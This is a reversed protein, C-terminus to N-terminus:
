LERPRCVQDGRGSRLWTPKAAKIHFQVNADVMGWLIHYFTYKTEAFAGGSFLVAAIRRETLFGTKLARM